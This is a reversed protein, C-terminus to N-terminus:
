LTGSIELVRIEDVHMADSMLSFGPETMKLSVLLIKSCTFLNPKGPTQIIRGPTMDPTMLMM